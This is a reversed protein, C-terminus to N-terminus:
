GTRGNHPYSGRGNGPVYFTIFEYCNTFTCLTVVYFIWLFMKTSKRACYRYEVSAGFNSGFDWEANEAFSGICGDCRLSDGFENTIQVSLPATLPYGGSCVWFSPGNDKTCTTDWSSRGSSKLKVFDVAGYGAVDDLHLGYWYASTGSKSRIKINGTYDCSVRSIATTIVGCTGSLGGGVIRAMATPNLDFHTSECEPCQDMCSIVVSPTSDSCNCGPNYGYPGVCTLKYCTGCGYGSDFTYGGCAAYYGFPFSSSPIDNYGCAGGHENGGYFTAKGYTTSTQSRCRAVLSVTLLFSLFM